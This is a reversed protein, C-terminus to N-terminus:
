HVTHRSCKTENYPLPAVEASSISTQKIVQYLAMRSPGLSLADQMGELEKELFTRPATLSLLVRQDLTM